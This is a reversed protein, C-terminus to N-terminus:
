HPADSEAKGEEETRGELGILLPFCRLQREDFPISVEAQPVVHAARHAQIYHIGRELLINLGACGREGWVIGREEDDGRLQLGGHNVSHDPSPQQIDLRPCDLQSGRVGQTLTEAGCGLKVSIHRNTVDLAARLGNWWPISLLTALKIPVALCYTCNDPIKTLLQALFINKKAGLIM